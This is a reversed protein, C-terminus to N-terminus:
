RKAGEEAQVLGYLGRLTYFNEIDHEAVDISCGTLSEVFVIMRIISFSTVLGMDFLNDDPAIEQPVPEKSDAHLSKVFERIEKYFHEQEM